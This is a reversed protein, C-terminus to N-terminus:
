MTFTYVENLTYNSHAHIARRKENHLEYNM